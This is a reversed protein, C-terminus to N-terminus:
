ITPGPGPWSATRDAASPWSRRDRPQSCCPATPPSRWPVLSRRGPSRSSRRAKPSYVKLGGALLSLYIRGQADVSGGNAGSDTLLNTPPSSGFDFAGSCDSKFKRVGRENGNWATYLSDDPGSALVAAPHVMPFGEGAPPSSYRALPQTYRYLPNSWDRAGLSGMRCTAFTSPQLLSQISLSM